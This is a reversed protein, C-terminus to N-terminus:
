GLVGIQLLREKATVSGSSAKFKISINYTGAAMSMICFGSDGSLSYGSYKTNAVRIESFPGETGLGISGIGQGTTVDVSSSSSPKMALVGATGKTVLPHFGSIGSRTVASVTAPENAEDVRVKYQNSGIFIAADGSGAESSKWMARYNLFLLGNEPVVVEKIEDATEMTVFSTSTKSQEASIAKPTYWTFKSEKLQANTIGTFVSSDVKNENTLIANLASVVTKLANTIKLEGAGKKDSSSPYEPSVNGAM